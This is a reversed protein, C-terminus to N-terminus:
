LSYKTNKKIHAKLINVQDNFLEVAEVEVSQVVKKVKGDIKAWKYYEVDDCGDLFEEM